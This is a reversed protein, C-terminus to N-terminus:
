GGFGGKQMKRLMNMYGNQGVGWSSQSPDQFEIPSINDYGLDAKDSFAGSGDQDASPPGMFSKAAITEDIQKPKGAVAEKEAVKNLMRQWQIGQLAEGIPNAVGGKAEFPKYNNFGSWKAETQDIISQKRQQDQSNLFNLGMIGLTLPDM